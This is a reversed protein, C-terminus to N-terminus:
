LLLQCDVVNDSIALPKLPPASLLTTMPTVASGIEMMAMARRTLAAHVLLATREGAGTSSAMRATRITNMANIM